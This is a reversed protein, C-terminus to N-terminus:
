VDFGAQRYLTLYTEVVRDWTQARAFDRAAAIRTAAPDPPWERRLAEVLEEASGVIRAFEAFPSMVLYDRKLEHTYAAYVPKQVAMAELMGLYGSVFAARAALLWRFPEPEFGHFRVNLRREACQAELEARLPGDGLVHVDLAVGHDRSLRHVAELYIEIGTDPALRGIFVADCPPAASVRAPIKVGGYSVLTPSVGYWKGIFAGIAITGRCHEAARRQRVPVDPPVPFRGFGHFTAFCARRPLWHRNAWYFEEFAALDHCHVVDAARVCRRAVLARRARTTFRLRIPAFRVINLPGLREREPLDSAHASTLVTVEHGRAALRESVREVHREVGGVRPRFAPTIMLVHM